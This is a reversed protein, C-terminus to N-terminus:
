KKRLTKKKSKRSKSSKRSKKGARSKKGQNYELSKQALEGHEVLERNIDINSTNTLFENIFEEDSITDIPTGDDIVVSQRESQHKRKRPREDDIVFRKSKYVTSSQEPPPPKLPEAAPPSTHSITRSMTPLLSTQKKDMSFKFKKSYYNVSTDISKLIIKHYEELLKGYQTEFLYIACKISNILYNLITGGGGDTMRQNRCFSEIEICNEDANFCFSLLTHIRRGEISILSVCNPNLYSEKVFEKDIGIIDMENIRDEMRDDLEDPITQFIIDTSYDITSNQKKIKLNEELICQIIKQLLIKGYDNTPLESAHKVFYLM